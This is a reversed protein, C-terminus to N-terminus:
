RLEHKKHLLSRRFNRLRMAFTPPPPPPKPKPTRSFKEILQAIRSTLNRTDFEQEVLTMASEGTRARLKDDDALQLLMQGMAELNLYPVTFGAGRACFEPAGGSNEFCVTPKGLAAAELMVLPFPDERSCSCFVDCANLFPYPNAQEGIFKVTEGLGLRQLDHLLIRGASDGPIRGTWLFSLKRSPGNRRRLSDALQLFLDPGKRWDAFGCAGIVFDQEGLGCWQRAETVSRELARERISSVSIGGYVMSIKEGPIAHLKQLAQSVADSCAIFHTTQKKVLEFNEEGFCGIAFPLEHMHTIVPPGDPPLPRLFAGNTCTNSYVLSVDEWMHPEIEPTACITTQGLQQFESELPGGARLVIRPEWDGRAAHIVKLLQMPAGSRSADHSIFLIKGKNPPAHQTNRTAHESSFGKSHAPSGNGNKEAGRAKEKSHGLLSKLFPQRRHSTGNQLEQTAEVKLAPYLKELNFRNERVAHSDGELIRDPFTIPRGAQRAAIVCNMMEQILRLLRPTAPTACELADHLTTEQFLMKPESPHMLEGIVAPIHTRATIRWAPEVYPPSNTYDLVAVPLGLLMAELMATSPTTIVADVQQLIESLEKGSFDMRASAPELGIEEDLGQTLRWVPQVGFGGITQQGAFFEKVDRLATRVAQHQSENFWPTLATMVLIRCPEDARKQRRQLECYHDFRPSGTIECKGINGWSELVRAQSRGICAIKQGPVPQFITGPELQPHEWTNRYELIGDALILTPIGAAVADHVLKRGPDIYIDHTVILAADRLLNLDARAPNLAKWPGDWSPLWSAYLPHTPDSTLLILERNPASADIVPASITKEKVGAVLWWEAREAEVTVPLHVRRLERPANPLKMGGGATQRYV